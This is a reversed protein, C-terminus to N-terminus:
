ASEIFCWAPCTKLSTPAIMWLTPRGGYQCPTHLAISGPGHRRQGCYSAPGHQQTPRAVYGHRWRWKSTVAAAATQAEDVGCLAVSGCFFPNGLVIFSFNEKCRWSIFDFIIGQLRKKLQEHIIWSHKRMSQLKQGCLSYIDTKTSLAKRLTPIDSHHPYLPPLCRKLRLIQKRLQRLNCLGLIEKLYELGEM